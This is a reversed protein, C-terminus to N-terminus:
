RFILDFIINVGNLLPQGKSRSYDTYRIHVPVETYPFQRRSVISLIESAHAMGNMQIDLAAAVERTFCRLGNHTDTLELGTSVRSYLVAAGLVARKAGSVRTRKDLFRSGFVIKKEGADLIELMQEVDEVDHQGDADFTVFYKVTELSLGFELGSRLAAGQGLNIPHQVLLAGAAVAVAASDDSSGDDVCVVLPYRTRVSTVVQAIVPAENFVPIVVCVGDRVTESV